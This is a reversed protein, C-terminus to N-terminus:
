GDGDSKGRARPRGLKLVWDLRLRWRLRIRRLWRFGMLSGGLDFSFPIIGM